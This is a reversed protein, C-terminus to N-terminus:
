IAISLTRYERTDGQELLSIIEDIITRDNFTVTLTLSNTYLTLYYLGPDNEAVTSGAKPHLSVDVARIDELPIYVERSITYGGKAIFKLMTM